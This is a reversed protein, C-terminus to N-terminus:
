LVEKKIIKDFKTMTGTSFPAKIDILIVLLSSFSSSLTHLIAFYKNVHGIVSFCLCLLWNKYVLLYM